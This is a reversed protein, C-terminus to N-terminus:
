VQLFGNGHSFPAQVADAGNAPGASHRYNVIIKSWAELTNVFAEVANYLADADLTELPLIRCIAFRGTAADRALTAGATGSFNYNAELMAKYLAELNEPPPAGLDGTLALLRLEDIHNLTVVFGDAEFSCAGDSDPTLRIGLRKGLAKILEATEM